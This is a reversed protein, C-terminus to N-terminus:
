GVKDKRLDPDLSKKVAKRTGNCFHTFARKSERPPVSGDYEPFPVFEGDPGAAGDEAAKKQDTDAKSEEAVKLKAEKHQLLYQVTDADLFHEYDSKVYWMPKTDGESAKKEKTAIESLKSCIKNKSVRGPYEGVFANAISVISAAGSRAVRNALAAILEEPFEASPVSESPASERSLQNLVKLREQIHHMQEEIEDVKGQLNAREAEEEQLAAARRRTRLVKFPPIVASELDTVDRPSEKGGDGESERVLHEVEKEAAKM